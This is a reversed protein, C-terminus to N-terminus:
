EGRNELLGMWGSYTFSMLDKAYELLEERSIDHMLSERLFQVWFAVLNHAVFRNIRVPKESKKMSIKEMASISLDTYWETFDDFYNEFSSGYSNILLLKLLNRNNDIFDVVPELFELHFEISFTDEDESHNKLFIKVSNISDLLPRLIQQYLKDKSKFYNYINSLSVGSSKSISRLSADKYGKEVFEKEAAKIISNEVEDKKIQM